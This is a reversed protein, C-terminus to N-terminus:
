PPVVTGGTPFFGWVGDGPNLAEAPFSVIDWTSTLWSGTNDWTYALPYAPDPPVTVGFNWLYAGATMSGLSTFGFMNWGPEMLYALPSAPPMARATGWVWWNYPMHTANPYTMRVWYSADPIMETLGGGDYMSWSAAAADYSWISVLDDVMDGDLAEADLSALLVDIAGDFPVLPLSILNWKEKLEIKAADKWQHVNFPYCVPGDVISVPGTAPLCDPCTGAPDGPCTVDFCIEYEGVKNFHLLMEFTENVSTSLTINYVLTGSSSTPTLSFFQNHNSFNLSVVCGTSPTPFATVNFTMTANTCPTACGEEEVALILDFQTYWNGGILTTNFTENGTVNDAQGCAKFPPVFGKAIGPYTPGFDVVLGYDSYAPKITYALSAVPTADVPANTNVTLKYSGGTTPNKVGLVVVEVLPNTGVVIHMPVYFTLVAGAGKTIWAAPVEIDGSGNWDVRVHTIASIDTDEPFDVTISGGGELLDATINFVITYTANAGACDTVPTVGAADVDASVPTAITSLALVLGLAILISIIKRV